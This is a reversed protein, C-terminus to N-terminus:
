KELNEAEKGYEEIKALLEQLYKEDTLPNMISVRLYFVGHIKTSVVYYTGDKLLKESINKNIKEIDGNSPLFRFCVINTLPDTALEFSKKSKILEAFYHGLDYLTDVNQAYIEDGYIRMIVYTHIITLPKTCELTHKASNYWELTLEDQWLYDAKPSHENLKKNRKNYM